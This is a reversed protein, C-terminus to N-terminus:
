EMATWIYEECALEDYLSVLKSYEDDSLKYNTKSNSYCSYYGWRFWFRETENSFAYYIEIYVSDRSNFSTKETEEKGLGNIFDMIREIDEPETVEKSRGNASLAKIEDSDDTVYFDIRKINWNANGCSSLLSLSLCFLLCFVIIRKLKKM